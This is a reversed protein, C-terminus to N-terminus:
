RLPDLSSACRWGVTWDGSWSSVPIGLVLAAQAELPTMIWSFGFMYYAEGPAVPDYSAPTRASAWPVPVETIQFVNGVGRSIGYPGQGAGPELVARTQDLYSSFELTEPKSTGEPLLVVSAADSLAAGQGFWAPDPGGLATQWEAATPLRKGQACAYDRMVELPVGAAPLNAVEPNLPSKLLDALESPVRGMGDTETLFEQLEGLSVCAADLRYSPLDIRTTTPQGQGPGQDLFTCTVSGGPISRMGEATVASALLRPQLSYEQHARFHASYECWRQESNIFVLRCFGPDIAIEARASRLTTVQEAPLFILGNSPDVIRRYVRLERGVDAPDFQLAIRPRAAQRDSWSAAQQAGLAVVAGLVLVAPVLKLMVRRNRLRDELSEVVGPPSASVPASELYRELDQAFANADQYRREPRYRLAQMCILVLEAPVHPALRRLPVPREHVISHLVAQLTDGSPPPRDALLEYLVAGLSYVDTRHDIRHRLSQAQEPSMYHPTGFLEGTRTLDQSQPAKALGFDALMPRGEADILINAPKIDRHVVGRSHAHALALAVRKVLDAALRPQSYDHIGKPIPQGARRAARGAEVHEKLSQGRVLEMAFYPLGQAEGATLVPVIGPHSLRSVLRAESQFRARMETSVLPGCLVKVAVERDLVVDRARFVIGASGRGLEALLEYQDLKTGILGSAKQAASSSAGAPGAPSVPELLEAAVPEARLLRCVERQLEADRRELGALFQEREKQSLDLAHNFAAQVAAFRERRQAASHPDQSDPAPPCM